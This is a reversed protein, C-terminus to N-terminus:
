CEFKINSGILIEIILNGYDVGVGVRADSNLWKSGSHQRRM